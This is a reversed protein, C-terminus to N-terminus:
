PHQEEWQMGARTNDEQRGAGLDGQCGSRPDVRRSPRSCSVPINLIDKGGKEEESVWLIGNIRPPEIFIRESWLM